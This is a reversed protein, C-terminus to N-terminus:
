WVYAGKLYSDSVLIQSWLLVQSFHALGNQRLTM